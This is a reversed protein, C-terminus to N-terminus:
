RSRGFGVTGIERANKTSFIVQLTLRIFLFSSAVSGVHRRFLPRAVDIATGEIIPPAFSHCLCLCLGVGTRKSLRARTKGHWAVRKTRKRYAKFL